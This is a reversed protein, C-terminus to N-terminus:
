QVDGWTLGSVVSTVCSKSVGYEDALTKHSRGTAAGARIERVDHETLKARHNDEGYRGRSM